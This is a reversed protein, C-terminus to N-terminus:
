LIYESLLYMMRIAICYDALYLEPNIRLPIQASFFFFILTKKLDCVKNKNNPFTEHMSPLCELHLRCKYLRPFSCRQDYLYNAFSLMVLVKLLFLNLFLTKCLGIFNFFLTFIINVSSSIIPTLGICSIIRFIFLQVNYAIFYFITSYFLVVLSYFLIIFTESTKLIANISRFLSIHPMFHKSEELSVLIYCCLYRFTFNNM